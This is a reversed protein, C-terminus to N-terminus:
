AATRRGTERQDGGRSSMFGLRRHRKEVVQVSAAREGEEVLRFPHSSSGGGAAVM